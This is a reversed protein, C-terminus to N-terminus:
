PLRHLSQDLFPQQAALPVPPQEDDRELRVVDPVDVGAPRREFAGRDGEDQATIRRTGGGPQCVDM